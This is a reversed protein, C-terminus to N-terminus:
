AELEIKQKLHHRFHMALLQLWEMGTFFGLNASATKYNSDPNVADLMKKTDDVIKQFESKIDGMSREGNAPQPGNGPMKIKIPPFSNYKFINAGFDNMEGGEQGKREEICRLANAMFYYHSSTILHEYMQSLSWIDDAKKEIFKAEDYNDLAENYTGISTTLDDYIEQQTM